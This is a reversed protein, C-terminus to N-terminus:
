ASKLLGLGQLAAELQQPSQFHIAAFGLARAAEVNPLHDDIFACEQAAYGIRALTLHYIAPDPKVLKVESSVIVDDFKKLFPHIERTLVFKENAFNTLGYVPMGDAKLRELLLVSGHIPGALCDLWHEDYARILPAYHPFQESLAAVGEAFSRGKDQEINWNTFDVTSLFTKIEAESLQPFHKQYLGLPSWRLLVGGLDFIIAKITM